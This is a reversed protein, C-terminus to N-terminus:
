LCVSERATETHRLVKLQLVARRVRELSVSCVRACVRVSCWVPVCVCVKLQLVARRVRERLLAEKLRGEIVMLVESVQTHTHTHAHTRARARTHSHHVVTEKLRSETMM